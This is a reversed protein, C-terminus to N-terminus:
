SLSGDSLDPGYVHLRPNFGLRRELYATGVELAAEVFVIIVQDFNYRIHRMNLARGAQLTVRAV